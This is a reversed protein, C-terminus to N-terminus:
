ARANKREAENGCVLGALLIMSPWVQLFLRDLSTNLHVQLDIPTVLYVFYYGMLLLGVVITGTVWGFSRMVQRNIGRVGILLLLPLFPSVTWEGFSVFKTVYSAVIMRHRGLDLIKAITDSQFHILDNRGFITVKFLIITALPFVLGASFAVFREVVKSQARGVPLLLAVCCAVIFLAGENKTWGACGATFGALVLLRRDSNHETYLCLLAITSLIFFSLPGDAYQSGAHWLYFPTGLLLLAFLVGTSAARLESLTLAVIAVGSLALVIGPLAGADPVEQGAYRWFRATLASTLLPYDSHYSYQIDDRWDSGDRFLFRAHTNWIAWADWSGHPMRDVALASAAFALGIAGCLVLGLAHPRLSAEVATEERKRRYLHWLAIVTLGSEVTFMPRRFLFFLLSCFGLGAGPAFAWSFHRPLSRPLLTTTIAYGFLLAVSLAAALGFLASGTM